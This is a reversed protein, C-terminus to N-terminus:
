LLVVGRHTLPCKRLVIPKRFRECAEEENKM